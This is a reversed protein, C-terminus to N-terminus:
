LLQRRKVGLYQSVVDACLRENELMSFNVGRRRLVKDLEQLQQWQLHGGLHQYLDDMATVEPNAFM